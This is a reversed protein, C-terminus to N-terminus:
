RRPTPGQQPHREPQSAPPPEPNAVGPGEIKRETTGAGGGAGSARALDYNDANRTMSVMTDQLRSAVQPNREEIMTVITKADALDKTISEPLTQGGMRQIRDLEQEAARAHPLAANYDAQLIEIYANAMSVYAHKYANGLETPPPGPIPSTEFGAGGGAPPKEAEQQCAGLPLVMALLGVTLLRRKRM